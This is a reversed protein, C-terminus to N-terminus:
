EGKLSRLVYLCRGAVDILSIASGIINQIRGLDGDRVAINYNIALSTLNRLLGAGLKPHGNLQRMVDMVGMGDVIVDRTNVEGYAAQTAFFELLPIVENKLIEEATEETVQLSFSSIHFKAPIAQFVESVSAVPKKDLWTVEIPRTVNAGEAIQRHQHVLNAYHWTQWMLSPVESLIARIDDKRDEDVSINWARLTNILGAVFPFSVTGGFMIRLTDMLSFDAIEWPKPLPWVAVGNEHYPPYPITVPDQVRLFELATMATQCFIEAVNSKAVSVAERDNVFDVAGPIVDIMEDPIKRWVREETM